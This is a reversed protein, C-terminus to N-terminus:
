RGDRLAQLTEDRKNKRYGLTIGRDKALAKLHSMNLRDIPTGPEIGEGVLEGEQLHLRDRADDPSPSVGESTIATPKGLSNSIAAAHDRAPEGRAASRGTETLRTTVLREHFVTVPELVGNTVLDDVASKVGPWDPHGYDDIAITAGQALHPAWRLVDLQAGEYSHDGDIYLLGIEPETWADAQDVSFGEILSIAGGYGTAKVNYRAWAHSTTFPPGYTNGALGWPDIAWVHAGHGQRAGWAMLLATRAQFVGIEVIAQHTPVNRALDALTMGIEDPTAGRVRRFERPAISNVAMPPAAERRARPGSRPRAGWGATRANRRPRDHGLRAEREPPAAPVPRDPYLTKLTEVQGARDERQWREYLAKDKRFQDRHNVRQYQEDNEAKGVIPHMHEIRVEPLHRVAGAAAFLELVSVDSYMHEVPAPVMRGLALVADSTMAWETCLKAGQYGDDGYVLGTRLERLADLYRQAWGITRAMHDDGAFGLAYYQDALMRATADLKHVMPLWREHEIVVLPSPVGVEAARDEFQAAVQHYGPLKPDDADIAIVLDARDWANTFDWASVVREINEPRGRTPVIIALDTVRDGM